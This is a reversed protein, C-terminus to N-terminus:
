VKRSNTSRIAGQSKKERNERSASPGLGFHELREHVLASAVQGATIRHDDDSLESAVRELTSWDEPTLPVKQRRSTGRLSPRGGTSLLRKAIEERIAFLAHPSGVAGGGLNEVQEAGLARAVETPNVKPLTRGTHRVRPVSVSTVRVRYSM